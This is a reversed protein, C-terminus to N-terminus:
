IKKVPSGEDSSEHETLTRKLARSIKAENCMDFCTKHWRAKHLRFTEAIGVGDDLRELNNIGLPLSDLDNLKHQREELRDYSSIKFRKVNSPNVLPVNSKKRAFFAYRGTQIVHINKSTPPQRQL